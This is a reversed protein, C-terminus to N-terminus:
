KHRIREVRWLLLSSWKELLVMLETDDMYAIYGEVQTFEPNHSHDIGENRFCRAVEYVRNMGGVICRKLFLEPAIRLYFDADLANHHTM